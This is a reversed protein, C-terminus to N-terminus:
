ARRQEPISELVGQHDLERIRAVNEAGSSCGEYLDPRTVMLRAAADFTTAVFKVVGEDGAGANM